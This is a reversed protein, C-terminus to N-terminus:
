FVYDKKSVDVEVELEVEEINEWESDVSEICCERWDSKVEDYDTGFIDSACFNENLWDNFATGDEYMEEVRDSKAEDLESETYITQERWDVYITINKKTKM